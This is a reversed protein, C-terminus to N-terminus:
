KTMIRILQARISLRNIRPIKIDALAADLRLLFIDVSIREM